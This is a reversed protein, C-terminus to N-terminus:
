LFSRDIYQGRLCLERLGTCAGLAVAIASWDYREGYPGAIVEGTCDGDEDYHCFYINVPNFDFVEIKFLKSKSRIEQYVRSLQLKPDKTKVIFEFPLKPEMELLRKHLSKSVLFVMMGDDSRDLSHMYSHMLRGFVDDPLDMLMASPATDTKTQNSKHELVVYVVDDVVDGATFYM